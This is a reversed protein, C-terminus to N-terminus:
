FFKRRENFYSIGNIIARILKTKVYYKKIEKHENSCIDTGTFSQSDNRVSFNCIIKNLFKSPIKNKSLRLWLEYDMSNKYKKDFMGFKNFLKRKLFVAQHPIYNTILLLWHRAKKYINRHPIIKNKEGNFFNAKGYIWDPHNNKKIFDNVDKLVRSSYFSDDSHLHIIYEGFSREIGKNMADGIGKPKFQFFTVKEPFEQQYKRIMEVTKDTSFGDIFVHEFDRFSQNKVSNINKQLYKESNFTCTIISFRM